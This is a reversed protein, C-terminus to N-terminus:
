ELLPAAREVHVFREGLLPAHLLPRDLVVVQQDGRCRLCGPHGDQMVVLVVVADRRDRALRRPPERWSARQLLAANLRDAAGTARDRSDVEVGPGLAATAVM